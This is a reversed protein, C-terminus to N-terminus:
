EKFSQVIEKVKSEETEYINVYDTYLDITHKDGEKIKASVSLVPTGTIHFAMPWLTNNGTQRKHRCFLDGLTYTRAHGVHLAGSSYPYPITVFCKKKTMDIKGKFIDKEAWKKQWKQEISRLSKFFDSIVTQQESM